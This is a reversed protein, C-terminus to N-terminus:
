RKIGPNVGSKVESLRPDCRLVTERCLKRAVVLDREALKWVPSLIKISVTREM